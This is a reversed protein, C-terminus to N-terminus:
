EGGLAYNPPLGVQCCRAGRERGRESAEYGRRLEPRTLMLCEVRPVLSCRRVSNSGGRSGNPVGRGSRLGAGRAPEAHPSAFPHPRDSSTTQSRTWAREGPVVNGVIVGFVGMPTLSALPIQRGRTLRLASVGPRLPSSVSFPASFVPPGAGRDRGKPPRRKGSQPIKHRRRPRWRPNKESAPNGQWGCPTWPPFVSGLHWYGM